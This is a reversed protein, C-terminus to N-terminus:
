PRGAAHAQWVLNAMDHIEFPKPVIRYVGLRRAGDSMEPTAFATMMVVVTTPSLERIRALLMLDHSDPLHYDLFMVDFPERSTLIQIAAAGDGAEAVDHGAEALIESLSWRILAEDDVILV